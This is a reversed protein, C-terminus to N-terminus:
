QVWPGEKAKLAQLVDQAAVLVDPELDYELRIHGIIEAFQDALSTTAPDAEAQEIYPHVNFRRM